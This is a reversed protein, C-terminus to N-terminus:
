LGRTTAAGLEKHTARGGGPLAASKSTTNGADIKLALHKTYALSIHNKQQQLHLLYVM